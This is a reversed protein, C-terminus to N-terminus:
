KYPLFFTKSDFRRYIIPDLYDGKLISLYLFCTYYLLTYFLNFNRTFDVNVFNYDSSMLVICDVFFSYSIAHLMVSILSRILDPCFLCAKNIM